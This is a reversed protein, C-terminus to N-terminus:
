GYLRQMIEKWHFPLWQLRTYVAHGFVDELPNGSAPGYNVLLSTGTDHVRAGVKLRQWLDRRRIGSQLLRRLRREAWRTRWAFLDPLVNTGAIGLHQIYDGGRCQILDDVSHPLAALHAAEAISHHHVFHLLARFGSQDWGYRIPTGFTVFDLRQGIDWGTELRQRVEEWMPLDIREWWPWRYFPRCAHFFSERKSKDGGLLHSMLALVNGGHSHAWVQIRTEAPLSKEMTALRHLLRIAGDARGIHHNASSWFFREVVIDAPHLAALREAYEQTYNGADQVLWDFWEKRRQRLSRGLTPWARGVKRILGLSDTGAFTGHVLLIASLQAAETRRASAPLVDQSATTADVYHVNVGAPMQFSYTQHPFRSEM